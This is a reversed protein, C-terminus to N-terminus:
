YLSTKLLWNETKCKGKGIPSVGPIFVGGPSIMDMHCSPTLSVQLTITALHHSTPGLRLYVPVSILSM